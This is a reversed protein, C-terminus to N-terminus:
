EGKTEQPAYFTQAPGTDRVLIRNDTHKHLFWAVYMDGICGSIHTAFIAAFAIYLLTDVFYLGLIIPTLIVTFWILPALTAKLSTERYVYINPVGCFACTLTLGFTLKEGTRRKYVIGHVIEHLIIYLVIGVVFVYYPGLLDESIEIIRFSDTLLLPLVLLGMVVVFLLASGVLMFTMFKGDKADVHHVQIYGEPREREFNREM